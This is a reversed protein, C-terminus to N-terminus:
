LTLSVSTHIHKSFQWTGFINLFDLEIFFNYLFQRAMNLFSMLSHDWPSFPEEIYNTVMQIATSFYHLMSPM